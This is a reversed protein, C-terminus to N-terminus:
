YQLIHIASSINQITVHYDNMPNKQIIPKASIRKKGYNVYERPCRPPHGGREGLPPPLDFPADGRGGSKDPNKILRRPIIEIQPSAQAAPASASHAPAGLLSQNNRELIEVSGYLKLM